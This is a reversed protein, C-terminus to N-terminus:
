FVATKIQLTYQSRTCVGVKTLKQQHFSKNDGILDRSLWLHWVTVLMSHSFLDKQLIKDVFVKFFFESPMQPFISLFVNTVSLLNQNNLPHPTQTFGNFLFIQSLFRRWVINSSTRFRQLFNYISIYFSICFSFYFFQSSCRM